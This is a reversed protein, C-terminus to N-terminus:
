FGDYDGLVSFLNFLFYFVLSLIGILNFIIPATFFLGTFAITGIISFGLLFYFMMSMIIFSRNREKYNLNLGPILLSFLLAILYKKKFKKGLEKEKLIKAELFIVDKILFLQYCEDCLKYSKHVSAEKIVKSCKSCFTSGGMVPFLKKTGFIYLILVLIFYVVPLKLFENLLKKLFFAFNFHPESFNLVRKWLAGTPLLKVEKLVSVNKQFEVIEPYRATYSNFLEEDNDRLLSLTFNNLTLKDKDDLKLSEDFYNSSESFNGSKYYINGMLDFKLKSKYNEGTSALIDLAVDFQKHQYYSYALATKLDNDFKEYDGRGYLHGDYVKQVVKFNKDRASNELMVNFSYLFTFVVIFILTYLITKKENENLYVWLFGTILFPYIFWGSFLLLPWLLLVVIIGLNKLSLTGHEFLPLDNGALRFYKIFLIMSFLFFVFLGAFFVMNFFSNVLLFSSKFDQLVMFLQKFANKFNFFGNGKKRDLVELKNYLYWYDPSLSLVKGYFAEAMDYKGGSFYLDGFKILNSALNDREGKEFGDCNIANLNELVMPDNKISEYFYIKKLNGWPNDSPFLFVATSLFMLFLFIFFRKNKM